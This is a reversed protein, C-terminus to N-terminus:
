VILDIQQLTGVGGNETLYIGSSRIQGHQVNNGDNMDFPTAANGLYLAGVNRQALTSIVDNGASDKSWILLKAFVSDNEDIWGNGDEDYASLDAFGNGSQAGFLESGDDIVGNGNIDLALFGSTSSVFSIQETEGDADLDFTYKKGTLQAATGDFNIVLPDKRVGDGARISVTTESTFSRQMQLSVEFQLTKGDTTRIEGVASFSTQEFEKVTESRDYELGWGFRQETTDAPQQKTDAVSQQEPPAQKLAGVDMLQVKRGIMAEVVSILLRLKPDQLAQDLADDIESVEQQPATSDQTAAAAAQRAAESIAVKASGADGALAAARGEFDPREAGKWFRTTEQVVVETSRSHQSTFGIISSDIKM